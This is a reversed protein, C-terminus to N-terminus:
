LPFISQSALIRHAHPFGAPTNRKNQDQVRRDGGQESVPGLVLTPRRGHAPGRFEIVDEWPLEPKIRRRKLEAMGFSM